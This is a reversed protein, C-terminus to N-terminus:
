TWILISKKESYGVIDTSINPLHWWFSEEPLLWCAKPMGYNSEKAVSPRPAPSFPKHDSVVCTLLIIGHSAHSSRCANLLTPLIVCQWRLHSTPRWLENRPQCLLSLFWYIFSTWINIEVSQRKNPLILTIKKLLYFLTNTSIRANGKITNVFSKNHIWAKQLPIIIRCCHSAEYWSCAAWNGPVFSTSTSLNLPNIESENKRRNIWSKELLSWM